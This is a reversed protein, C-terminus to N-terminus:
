AADSTYLLCTTHTQKDEDESQDDHEAGMDEHREAVLACAQYRPEALVAIPRQEGDNRDHAERQDDPAKRLVARMLPDLDPRRGREHPVDGDAEHQERRNEKGGGEDRAVDFGLELMRHQRAYFSPRERMQERVAVEARDQQEAGEQGPADIGADGGLPATIETHGGRGGAMDVVDKDHHDADDDIEREAVGEMRHHDARRDKAPLSGMDTCSSILRSVAGSM